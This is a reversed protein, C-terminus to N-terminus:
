KKKQGVDRNANQMNQNVARWERNLEIMRHLQSNRKELYKIDKKLAECQQSRYMDNQKDKQYKDSMQSLFIEKNVRNLKKIM